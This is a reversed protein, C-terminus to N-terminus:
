IDSTVTIDYSRMVPVGRQRNFSLTSATHINFLDLFSERNDTFLSDRIPQGHLRSGQQPRAGSMVDAHCM